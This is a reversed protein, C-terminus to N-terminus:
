SAGRIRRNILQLADVAHQWATYIQKMSNARLDGVVFLNPVSSEGNSDTIVLGMADVQAGLQLALQNNPRIGLAVFGMEAEVVDGNELKFGSLQKLERNGLVEQIPAELIRIDNEKIRKSLEPTFEHAHGNTLIALSALRYKESLLLAISAASESHGIVVSKKGFSRHGDCLSCYAVTQGNAYKLIPRISGQIHPQEDMIGTAMVVYSAYYTRGSGDMLKFFDVDKKLLQERTDLGKMSPNLPADAACFLENLAMQSNIESGQAGGADELRQESLGLGGPVSVKEISFISDEIVYLNHSLPSQVLEVLVENRLELLTREYKGLGPVNDVKRVWNGRSRRRELEAGAFLLVENNNLVARKVAMTGAAGAGIIAIPYVKKEEPQQTTVPIVKPSSLGGVEEAGIGPYFIMTPYFVMTAVLFSLAYNKM